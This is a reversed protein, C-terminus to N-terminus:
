CITLTLLYHGELAFDKDEYVIEQFVLYFTKKVVMEENNRVYLSGVVSAMSLDSDIIGGYTFPSSNDLQLYEPLTILSTDEEIDSSEIVEGERNTIVFLSPPVSRGLYIQRDSIRFKGTYNYVHTEGEFLKEFAERSFDNNSTPLKSILRNYSYGVKHFLLTKSCKKLTLSLNLLGSSLFFNKINPQIHKINFRNISYFFNIFLGGKLHYRLVNTLVLFSKISKFKSLYSLLSILIIFDDRVNKFICNIKETEVFLGGQNLFTNMKEVVSFTPFIINAIYILSTGFSGQFIFFKHNLLKFTKSFFAGLLFIFNSRLLTSFKNQLNFTGLFNSTLSSAKLNIFSVDLSPNSFKIFTNILTLPQFFSSLLIKPNKSKILKKSIKSKGWFILFFLFVNWGLISYTFKIELAKGISFCEFFKQNYFAENLRLNVLSIDFRPNVGVLLIFNSFRYSDIPTNLKCSSIFDLNTFFFLSDSIINSSGLSNLFFKFFYFDNFNVLDGFIGVVSGVKFRSKFFIFCNKWSSKIFQNGVRILPVELRQVNFSDVSFRIRDSIWINDVEFNKLIKIKCVESNKFFVNTSILISDFFDVSKFFSLEWLRGKFSYPKSTLAGVPCLDIINGSLEETLTSHFYQGIETNSGRGIIGLNGSFAIGEIFRVCRTCHICRSMISKILGNFVKDSVSRKHDFFRSVDSGYRMSLNQLDCEGGQDCIPCDLPHNLLLFELINERVKQIFPSDTFVRMNESAHVACSAIPKSLGDVEVLCMRCNGSILLNEHYCFHPITFGSYELVQLITFGSPVKFTENNIIFCIM